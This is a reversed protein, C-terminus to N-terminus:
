LTPRVQEVFWRNDRWNLPMNYKDAIQANYKDRHTQRQISEVEAKDAETAIRCIIGKGQTEQKMRIYERRSLTFLEPQSDYTVREYFILLPKSM